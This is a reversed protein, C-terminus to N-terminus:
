KLNWTASGNQNKTFVTKEHWLIFISESTTSTCTGLIVPRTYQQALTKNSIKGIRAISTRFNRIPSTGGTSLVKLHCSQRVSILQTAKMPLDGSHSILSLTVKAKLSPKTEVHTSCLQKETLTDNLWLTTMSSLGFYVNRISISPGSLEKRRSVRQQQMRQFRKSLDNLAIM